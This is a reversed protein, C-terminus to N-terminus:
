SKNPVVLEPDVEMHSGIGDCQPCAGYPSNFSFMRPALEEMSIECSPCAFHESFLHEKNPLENVMLLGGSIKLALEISETLRDHIQKKLILRDIVVEITHKKNKNLIIKDDVTLVEGDVRVRLFGEKRVADLAGKHEGKRGRILPALIHIKAGSKLKSVTDVIQQVTQRQIPNGCKWCHPKGIHAFLLRLYDHIETM